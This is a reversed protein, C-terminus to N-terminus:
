IDKIVMGIKDTDSWLWITGESDIQRVKFEIDNDKNFSTKTAWEVAARITQGEFTPRANWKIIFWSSIDDSCARYENREANFGTQGQNTDHTYLIKGKWSLNIENRELLIEDIDYRACSSVAVCLTMFILFRKM